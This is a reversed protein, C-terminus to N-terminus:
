ANQESRGAKRYTSQLTDWSDGGKSKMRRFASYTKPAEKGLREKYREYQFLDNRAQRNQAQQKNYLNIEEVSRPDEVTSKTGDTVYRAREEDSWLAEVTPTVVHRCNPHMNNYGDAFGPLSYLSPFRTDNGSRSYIRGQLPACVKCTPYHESIRVLDYGLQDGTNMRATNGAERTTSRAVMKAYTDARVQRGPYEGYQVTFFGNNKMLHLMNDKMQTITTGTALKEATASLGMSRLAEAKSVDLYRIVQRGVTALGSQIQFQMERAITYVADTHIQAFMFSKSAMLGTKHFYAYMDDLAAQYERPIATEIFRDTASQLKALESQVSQLITNYYTKLGVNDTYLIQQILRMRARQYITVLAEIEQETAM